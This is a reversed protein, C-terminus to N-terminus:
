GILGFFSLVHIITITMIATSPKNNIAGVTNKRKKGNESVACMVSNESSTAMESPPWKLIGTFM